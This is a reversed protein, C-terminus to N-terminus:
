SNKQKETRGWREHPLALVMSLLVVVKEQVVASPRLAVLVCVARYPRYRKEGETM